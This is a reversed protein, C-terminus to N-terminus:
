FTADEWDNALVNSITFYVDDIETINLVTGDKCHMMITENEWSWYGGWEKRKQPIGQKMRELNLM